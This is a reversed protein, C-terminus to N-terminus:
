SGFSLLDESGIGFLTAIRDIAKLSFHNWAEEDSATVFSSWNRSAVPGMQPWFRLKSEIRLAEVRAILRHRYEKDDDYADTDGRSTQPSVVRTTM